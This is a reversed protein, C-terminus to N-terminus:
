ELGVKRAADLLRENGRKACREVLNTGFSELGDFRLVTDGSVGSLYGDLWLMIAGVDDESGSAVDQLFQQCSITGFDVNQQQMRKAGAPSALALAAAAISIAILRNM